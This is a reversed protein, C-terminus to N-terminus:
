VVEEVIETDKEARATLSKRKVLWMGALIVATAVVTSRSVNEDLIVWGLWVAIVPNIYAYLSVLSSPLKALAHMYCAYGLMAGFLTLYVFSILGNKDWHVEHFDGKFAALVLLMAGGFMM